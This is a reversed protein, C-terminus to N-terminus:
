RAEQECSIKYVGLAKLGLSEKVLRLFVHEKPWPPYITETNDQVMIRSIHKSLNKM